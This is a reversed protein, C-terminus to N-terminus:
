DIRNFDDAFRANFTDESSSEAAESAITAVESAEIPAEIAAKPQSERLGPEFTPPPPSPSSLIAQSVAGLAERPSSRRSSQTDLEILQSATGRSTIKARKKSSFTSSVTSKRLRKARNPVVPLM